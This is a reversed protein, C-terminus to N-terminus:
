KRVQFRVLVASDDIGGAIWISGDASPLLKSVGLGKPLTVRSLSTENEVRYLGDRYSFWISGDTQAVLSRPTLAM